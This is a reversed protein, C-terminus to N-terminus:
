EGMKSECAIHSPIDIRSAALGGSGRRRSRGSGCGVRAGGGLRARIVTRRRVTGGVSRIWVIGPTRGGGVTGIGGATIRASRRLGCTPFVERIELLPWRWSLRDITLAGGRRRYGPGPQGYPCDRGGDDLQRVSRLGAKYKSKSLVSQNIKINHNKKSNM